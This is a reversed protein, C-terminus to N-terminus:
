KGADRCPSSEAVDLGAAFGDMFLGAYMMQRRSEERTLAIPTAPPVTPDMGKDMMVARLGRQV